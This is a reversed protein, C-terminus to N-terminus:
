RAASARCAEVASADHEAEAALVAQCADGLDDIQAADSSVAAVEPPFGPLDAPRVPPLVAATRVPPTYLRRSSEPQARGASRSTREIVARPSAAPEAAAARQPEARRAARSRERRAERRSRQAEARPAPPPAAAAPQAPPAASEQRGIGIASLLDRLPNPGDNPGVSVRTQAPATQAESPSTASVLVLAALSAALVSARSMVIERSRTLM